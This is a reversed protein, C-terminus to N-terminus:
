KAINEKGKIQEQTHIGTTTKNKIGILEESLNILFNKRTIKEGSSEQYLIHANIGAKDLLKYFVALPWRRCFSQTSYNKIM